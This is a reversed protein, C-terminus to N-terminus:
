FRQIERHKIYLKGTLQSSVTKRQKVVFDTTLQKQILDWSRGKRM